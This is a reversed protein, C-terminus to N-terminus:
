HPTAYGSGLEFELRDLEELLEGERERVLDPLLKHRAIEALEDSVKVFRRTLAERDMPLKWASLDAGIMKM